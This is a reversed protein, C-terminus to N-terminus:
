PIWHCFGILSRVTRTQEAVHIALTKGFPVPSGPISWSLHLRFTGLADLSGWPSEPFGPESRDGETETYFPLFPLLLRPMWTLSRPACRAFFNLRVSLFGRNARYVAEVARFM